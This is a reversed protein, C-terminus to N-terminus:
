RSWLWTTGESVSSTLTGFGTKLWDEGSLSATRHIHVAVEKQMKDPGTTKSRGLVLRLGCNSLISRHPLVAQM